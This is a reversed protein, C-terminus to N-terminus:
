PLEAEEAILARIHSLLTPLETEITDWVRRDDIADYGHAIVNRFGIVSEVDPLERRYEPFEGV